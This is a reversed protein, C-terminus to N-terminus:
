IYLFWGWGQEYNTEARVIKGGYVVRKGGGVGM